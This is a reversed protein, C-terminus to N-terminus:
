TSSESRGAASEQGDCQNVKGDQLRKTTSEGSISPLLGQNDFISM